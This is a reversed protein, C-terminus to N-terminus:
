IARDPERDGPRNRLREIVGLMAEDPEVDHIQLKSSSVDARYRPAGAGHRDSDIERDGNTSPLPCLDSRLPDIQVAALDATPPHARGVAGSYAPEQRPEGALLELDRELRRGAPPEEHLLQTRDPRHHMEGLRRLGRRQAPVLLARLGIARIRTMM